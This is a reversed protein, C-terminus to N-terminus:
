GSRLKSAGRVFRVRGHAPHPSAEQRGQRHAYARACGARRPQTGREKCRFLCDRVLSWACAARGRPRQGRGGLISQSVPLRLGVRHTYDCATGVARLGGRRISPLAYRMWILAVGAMDLALAPMLMERPYGVTLEVDVANLGCKGARLPFARTLLMVAASLAIWATMLNTM